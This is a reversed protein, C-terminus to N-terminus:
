EPSERVNLHSNLEILMTSMCDSPLTRPIVELQAPLGLGSPEALNEKYKPQCVFNGKQLILMLFYLREYKATHSIQHRVLKSAPCSVSDDSHFWSRNDEQYILLPYLVAPLPYLCWIGSKAGNCNRLPGGRNAYRKYKSDQFSIEWCSRQFQTIFYGSLDTLKTAPAWSARLGGRWGPERGQSKWLCTWGRPTRSGVGGKWLSVKGTPPVKMKVQRAPRWPLHDMWSIPLQTLSKRNLTHEAWEVLLAVLAPVLAAPKGRFAWPM